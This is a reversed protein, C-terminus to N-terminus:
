GKKNKSSENEKKKQKAELIEFNRKAEKLLMGLEIRQGIYMLYDERPVGEGLLQLIQLDRKVIYDQFAKLPYQGGIWEKMKNNSIVRELTPIKLFRFLLKILFQKIM